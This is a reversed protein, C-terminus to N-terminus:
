LQRYLPKHHRYRAILMRTILIPTMLGNAVLRDPAEALAMTECVRRAVTPRTIRLGGQVTM